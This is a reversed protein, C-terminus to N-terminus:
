EEATIGLRATLDPLTHHKKPQLRTLKIGAADLVSEIVQQRDDHHPHSSREIQVVWEVRCSGPHVLAFDVRKLAIERLLDSRVKAEAEVDVFSWLPVQSFVLYREQVAMQLLSYLAIEEEELLRTSEITVGSPVAFPTTRKKRRRTRRLYRWLMIIGAIVAGVLLLKM